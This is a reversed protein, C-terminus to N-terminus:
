RQILHDTYDGLYDDFFFTLHTTQAQVVEDM